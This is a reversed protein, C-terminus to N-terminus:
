QGSTRRGVRGKACVIARLNIRHWLWGFAKRHKQTFTKLSFSELHFIMVRVGTSRFRYRFTDSFLWMELEAIGWWYKLGFDTCWRSISSVIVSVCRRNLTKTHRETMTHTLKQESTDIACSRATWYTLSCNFFLLIFWVWPRVISAIRKDYDEQIRQWIFDFHNQQSQQSQPREFPVKLKMVTM